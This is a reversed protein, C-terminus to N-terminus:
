PGLLYDLLLASSDDVPMPRPPGGNSAGPGSSARQALVKTLSPLAVQPKSIDRQRPLPGAEPGGPGRREGLRSAPRGSEARVRAAGASAETPDPATIGPQYPGLWQRCDDFAKRDPNTQPRENKFSCPAASLDVFVRLLHSISDFGNISLSQWYFYNWLSEMGTFGGKGGRRVHTKDPAPPDGITARADTDTARRRDDATQLFQRLPKATGPANGALQRLVRVEDEGERVV